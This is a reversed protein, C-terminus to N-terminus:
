AYVRGNPVLYLTPSCIVQAAHIGLDLINQPVRQPLPPSLLEGLCVLRPFGVLLVM